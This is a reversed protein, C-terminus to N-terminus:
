RCHKYVVEVCTRAAQDCSLRLEKQVGLSGSVPTWFGGKLASKDDYPDYERGDMMEERGWEQQSVQWPSILRGREPLRDLRPKLSVGGGGARGGRM